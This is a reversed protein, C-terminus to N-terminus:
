QSEVVTLRGLAVQVIIFVASLAVLSYVVKQVTENGMSVFEVLNFNVVTLGWNLAGVLVLSLVVLTVVHEANM